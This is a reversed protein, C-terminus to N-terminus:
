KDKLPANIHELIKKNRQRRRELVGNTEKLRSLVLDEKVARAARAEKNHKSKIIATDTKFYNWTVIISVLLAVAAVAWAITKMIGM